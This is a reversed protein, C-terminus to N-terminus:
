QCRVVQGSQNYLTYGSCNFQTGCNVWQMGDTYQGNCVQTTIGGGGLGGMCLASNSQPVYQGNIVQYCVNNIMQYNGAQYCLSQNAVQQLTGNVNQYCMNNIMQYAGVMGTSNNNNDRACNAMFLAISLLSVVRLIKAILNNTKM